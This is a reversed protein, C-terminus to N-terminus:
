NNVRSEEECVREEKEVEIAYLIICVWAIGLLLTTM